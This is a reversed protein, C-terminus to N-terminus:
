LGQPAATGKLLTIMQKIMPAEAPSALDARLMSERELERLRWEIERLITTLELQLASDPQQSLHAMLDEDTADMGTSSFAIQISKLRDLGQAIIPRVKESMGAMQKVLVPQGLQYRQLTAAIRQVRPLNAQLVGTMDLTSGSLREAHSATAVIDIFSRGFEGPILKMAIAARSLPQPASEILGVLMESAALIQGNLPLKDGSLRQPYGFGDLREHHQLVAEAVVKGAGHMDKLLRHAVIPHTVIHRWQEPALRVGKALFAPDIYLEGVDHLLAALMLSPLQDAHSPVIKRTLSTTLLFVTVAHHLKDARHECYVTLLSQVAPSLKLKRLVAPADAAHQSCLHHLSENSALLEEAAQALRDTVGGQVVICDELPKRLKHALLREQVNADIQAGKALLKMGNGALIDESAEVRHTQSTAVVHELYHRNVEDPTTLM